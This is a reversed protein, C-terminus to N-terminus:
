YSYMYDWLDKDYADVIEKMIMDRGSESLYIVKELVGEPMDDNVLIIAIAAIKNDYMGDTEGIVTCINKEEYPLEIVSGGYGATDPFGNEKRINDWGNDALVECVKDSMKDQINNNQYMCSISIIAVLLICLMMSLKYKM